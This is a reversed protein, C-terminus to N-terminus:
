RRSGPSVTIAPPESVKPSPLRSLSKSTTMQPAVVDFDRTGSSCQTVESRTSTHVREWSSMSRSNTSARSASARGSGIAPANPLM